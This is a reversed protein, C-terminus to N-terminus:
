FVGTESVSLLCLVGFFKKKNEVEVGVGEKENKKIKRKGLEM